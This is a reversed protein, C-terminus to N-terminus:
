ACACLRAPQANASRSSRSRALGRGSSTRRVPQQDVGSLNAVERRLPNAHQNRACLTLRHGRQAAGRNGIVFVGLNLGAVRDQQTRADNGSVFSPNIAHDVMKVPPLRVHDIVVAAVPQDVHASVAALFLQLQHHVQQPGLEEDRDMPVIAMELLMDLERTVVPVTPSAMRSSSPSTRSNSLCRAVFFPLTVVPRTHM